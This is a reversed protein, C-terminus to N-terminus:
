APASVVFNRWLLIYELKIFFSISSSILILLKLLNLSFYCRYEYFKIVVDSTNSLFTIVRICWLTQYMTKRSEGATKYLRHLWCLVSLSVFWLYSVCSEYELLSSNFYMIAGLYLLFFFYCKKYYQLGSGMLVKHYRLDMGERILGYM